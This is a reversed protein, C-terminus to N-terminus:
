GVCRSGYCALEKFALGSRIDQRTVHASREVTRFWAFRCAFCVAYVADQGSKQDPSLLSLHLHAAMAHQLMCALTLVHKSSLLDAASHPSRTHWPDELFCVAEPCLDRCTSKPAASYPPGLLSAAKQLVSHHGCSSLTDRAPSGACCSDLRDRRHPLSCIWSPHM